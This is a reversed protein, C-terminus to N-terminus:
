FFAGDNGAGVSQDFKVPANGCPAILKGNSM